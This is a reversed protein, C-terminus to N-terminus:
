GHCSNNAATARRSAAGPGAVAEPGHAASLDIRDVAVRTRRPPLPTTDRWPVNAGECGMVLAGDM